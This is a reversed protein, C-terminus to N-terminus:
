EKTSEVEYRTVFSIEVRRNKQRGEANENSAVPRTEAFGRFYLRDAPIGRKQLERLVALARASSLGWLDGFRQRTEPRAVPVSDTHGDVRVIINPSQARLTEAVKEIARMGAPTLDAKAFDFNVDAVSLVKREPDFSLEKSGQALAELEKYLRDLDRDIAAPAAQLKALLDSKESRLAENMQRLQENEAMLSSRQSECESARRVQEDYKRQAVLCGGSVLVACLVAVSTMWRMISVKM